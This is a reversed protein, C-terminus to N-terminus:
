QPIARKSAERVARGFPDPYPPTFCRYIEANKRRSGLDITFGDLHGFAGAWDMSDLEFQFANRIDLHRLGARALPALSRVHQAGQLYLHTLRTEMVWDVDGVTRVETLRLIRLGTAKTLAEPHALTIGALDLAAVGTLDLERADIVDTRRGIITRLQSNAAPELIVGDRAVIRPRVWAEGDLLSRARDAFTEPGDVFRSEPKPWASRDFAHEHAMVPWRHLVLARDHVRAVIEASLALVAVEGGSEIVRGRVVRGGAVPIAFTDGTRYPRRM